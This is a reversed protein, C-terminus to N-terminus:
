ISDAIKFDSLTPKQIANTLHFYKKNGLFAAVLSFTSPPGIIYDCRSLMFFDDIFEGPGSKIHKKNLFIPNISDNSFIIIKFNVSQFLKEIHNIIKLYDDDNYYYIGNLYEKYDGKRLHLGVLIEDNVKKFQKLNDLTKQTPSFIERILKSHVKIGEHNRFGWGEPVIIKNKNKLVFNKLDFEDKHNDKERNLNIFSVKKSNKFFRYLLSILIKSVFPHKDITILDQNKLRTLDFLSKYEDFNQIKLKVGTEISTVAFHSILIIRNAMQGYKQHLYIM